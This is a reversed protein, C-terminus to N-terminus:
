KFDEPWGDPIIRVTTPVLCFARNYGPEKAILYTNKTKNDVVEYIEFPAKCSDIKAVTIREM